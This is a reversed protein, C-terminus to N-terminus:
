VRELSQEGFWNEWSGKEDDLSVKYSPKGDVLRFDIVYGEDPPYPPLTRVKSMLSFRPEEGM